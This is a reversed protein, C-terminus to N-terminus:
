GLPDFDSLVGGMGQKGRGQLQTGGGKAVNLPVLPQSGMGMGMAM